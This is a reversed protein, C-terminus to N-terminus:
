ENNFIKRSLYREPYLFATNNTLCDNRYTPIYALAKAKEVDSLLKWIKEAKAKEGKKYSYSDWFVKFSLDLELLQARFEKRSFDKIQLEKFPFIPKIFDIFEITPSFNIKFDILLGKLSYKFLMSKKSKKHTILYNKM